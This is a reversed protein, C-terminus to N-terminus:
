INLTPELCQFSEVPEDWISDIISREMGNVNRPNFSFFQGAKLMGVSRSCQIIIRSSSQLAEIYDGITKLARTRFIGIQEM